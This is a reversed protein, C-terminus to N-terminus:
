TGEVAGAPVLVAEGGRELFASYASGFRENIYDDFSLPTEVYEVEDQGPWAIAIKNVTTM